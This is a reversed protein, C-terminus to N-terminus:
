PNPITLAGGSAGTTKFIQINQLDPDSTFGVGTLRRGPETLVFSSDSRILQQNILYRLEPSTLEKGDQTQVVVSGRAEMIGQRTNYTGERSTLTGNLVGQDTYFNVRVGRLETRTGQDFLYATDAFLEGRRVGGAVLNNHVGFLVQDASDAITPSDAVPPQATDRCGAAAAAAVLLAGLAAARRGVVAVLWRM